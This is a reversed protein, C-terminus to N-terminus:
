NEQREACGVGVGKVVGEIGDVGLQLRGSGM